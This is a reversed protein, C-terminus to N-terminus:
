KGHGTRRQPTGDLTENTTIIKHFISTYVKDNEEAHLAPPRLRKKKFILLENEYQANADTWRDTQTRKQIYMRVHTYKEIHINM